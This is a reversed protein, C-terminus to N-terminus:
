IDGDGIDDPESAAIQGVGAAGLRKPASLSVQVDELALVPMLQDVTPMAAIFAKAGDSSLGDLLLQEQAHVSAREIELRARAEIQEVRRKAIRRLEAREGALANRGRGYWTVALEPAFEAPIGMERCREAIRASADAVVQKAALTAANWVEDEDYSYRRDLQAEFDAMLTASRESASSKAVRERQRVMKLLSEREARSLTPGRAPLGIDGSM